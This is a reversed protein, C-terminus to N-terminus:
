SEETKSIGSIEPKRRSDPVTLVTLVTVYPM